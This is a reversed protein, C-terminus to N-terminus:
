GHCPGRGRQTETAMATTTQMAAEPEPANTTRASFIRRCGNDSEGVCSLAAGGAVLGASGVVDTCAANGAAALLVSTTSISLKDTSRRVGRAATRAMAGAKGM